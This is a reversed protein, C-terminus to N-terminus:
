YYGIINCYFLTGDSIINITAYQLNGAGALQVNSSLNTRVSGASISSSIICPNLLTGAIGNVIIIAQYGAPLSTISITNIADGANAFTVSYYSIANTQSPITLTTPSYPDLSLVTTNIANPGAPGTVGTPGGSPGTPGRCGRGTPGTAGAEGTNGIPGISAPGAPGQPGVPGQSNLNCCRQAGLYQNYTGYYRSM